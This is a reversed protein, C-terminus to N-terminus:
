LLCTSERRKCMSAVGVPAFGHHDLPRRGRGGARRICNGAIRRKMKEREVVKANEYGKHRARLHTDLEAEAARSRHAPAPAPAASVVRWWNQSLVAVDCAYQYGSDGEWMWTKKMGTIGYTSRSYVKELILGEKAEQDVLCGHASSWGSAKAFFNRSLRQQQL